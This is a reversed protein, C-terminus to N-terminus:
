QEKYKGYLEWVNKEATYQNYNSGCDEGFYQDCKDIYSDLLRFIDLKVQESRFSSKACKGYIWPTYSRTTDPNKNILPIFKPNFKPEEMM